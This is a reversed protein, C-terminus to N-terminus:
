GNRRHRRRDERCDNKSRCRSKRGHRHHRTHSEAGAVRCYRLVGRHDRLNGPTPVSFLQLVYIRRPSHASQSSAGEMISFQRVRLMIRRTPLFEDTLPDPGLLSSNKSSPAGRLYEILFQPDLRKGTGALMLEDLSQEAGRSYFKQRLFDGAATGWRSGFRQDVTNQIQRAVVHALVFSQLYIPGSDYMPNYAWVPADHLEVGLYQAHIRNYLAALDQGPDAYAEFEFLSDAMKERLDFLTKLRYRKALVAAEGRSLGFLSASVEPRYLMLTLFEALGEDFPEPCDARLLFSPGDMMSYHLAHGTSHLLRDYFRIGNLRNALIKVEKGYLIPYAAGDFGLDAVRMDVPLKGLDYGLSAALQKTKLWGQAPVFQQKEFENTLTSFYYELDWPEIKELRLERRMQDLLQGYESDAERRLHDFWAFIQQSSAGKRRLMFISFITDSYRLALENRLNITQRIPEGNLPAIQARAKWAQERIQRDPNNAVLNGLEARTNLKDGVKYHFHGEERTISEELASLKTDTTIKTFVTEELFLDRRRKLLSDSLSAAKLSTFFGEQKFVGRIREEILTSSAQQDGLAKKYETRWYDAYLSELQKEKAELQAAIPKTSQAAAISVTVLLLLFVRGPRM